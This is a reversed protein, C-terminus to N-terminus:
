ELVQCAMEVNQRSPIYSFCCFLGRKRWDTLEVFIGGEWQGEHSSDQHYIFYDMGAEEAGEVRGM